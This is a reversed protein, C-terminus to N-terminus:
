IRHRLLERDVEALFDRFDDVQQLTLEGERLREEIRPSVSLLGAPAATLTSTMPLTEQCAHGEGPPARLNGATRLLVPVSLHGEDIIVAPFPGPACRPLAGARFRGPAGSRDSCGAMFAAKM